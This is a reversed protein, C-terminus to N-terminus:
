KRSAPKLPQDTKTAFDEKKLRTVSDVKASKEESNLASILSSFINSGIAIGALALVMLPIQVWNLNAVADIAKNAEDFKVKAEKFATGKSNFDSLKATKNTEADTLVKELNALNPDTPNKRFAEDRAKKADDFVKEYDKKAREADDFAKEASDKEETFKPLKDKATKAKDEYEKMELTSVSPIKSHIAMAAFFSGFIVLTWAFAQLRSLSLRNDSGAIFALLKASWSEGRRISLSVILWLLIPVLFVLRYGWGVPFNM